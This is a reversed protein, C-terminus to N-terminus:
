FDGAYMETILGNAKFTSRDFVKLSLLSSSDAEKPELFRSIRIHYGPKPKKDLPIQTRLPCDPDYSYIIYYELSLAVTPYVKTM